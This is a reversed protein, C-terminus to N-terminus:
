PRIWSKVVEILGTLGASAVLATWAGTKMAQKDEATRSTEIVTLRNESTRVRGNQIAMEDRIRELAANVEARMQAFQERQDNRIGEVMNYLHDQEAM